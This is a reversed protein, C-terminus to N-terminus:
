IRIYENGEGGSQVKGPFGEARRGLTRFGRCLQCLIKKYLEATLRDLKM